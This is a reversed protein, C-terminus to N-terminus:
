DGLLREPVAFRIVLEGLFSEGFCLSALDGFCPSRKSKSPPNDGREEWAAELGICIAWGEETVVNIGGVNAGFGTRM